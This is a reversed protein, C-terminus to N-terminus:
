QHGAKEVIVTNVNENGNLKMQQGPPLSLNIHIQTRVLVLVFSFSVRRLLDSVRKTDVSATWGSKIIV